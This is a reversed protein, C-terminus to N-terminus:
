IIGPTRKSKTSTTFKTSGPYTFFIPMFTIKECKVDRGNDRNILDLAGSGIDGQRQDSYVLTLPGCINVSTWVPEAPLVLLTLAPWVM